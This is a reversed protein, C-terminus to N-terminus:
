KTDMFWPQGSERKTLIDCGNETVLLTQEFQASWQGLINENLDFDLYIL